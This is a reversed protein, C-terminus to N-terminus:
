KNDKIKFWYGITCPLRQDNNSQDEPHWISLFAQRTSPSNRLRNQIDRYDGMIFRIGQKKTPWFREQYTHSFKGTSRFRSNDIKNSYFPWNKYQKGPNSAGALRELFHDESWPLHAQTQFALDDITKCIDMELHLNDVEYMKYNSKVSQWTGVSTTKKVELLSEIAFRINDKTTKLLM